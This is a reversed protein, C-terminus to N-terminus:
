SSQLTGVLAGIAACPHAVLHRISEFTLDDNDGSGSGADASRVLCTIREYGRRLLNDVVQAGIFGNAGTVLVPEHKEILLDM